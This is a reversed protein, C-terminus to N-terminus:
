KTIRINEYPLGLMIFLKRMIYQISIMRKRERNINPLVEDIEKFIAIKNKNHVDAFNQKCLKFLLNEIHYKRNYISKRKIKYYRKNYRKEHFDIYGNDYLYGGVIGCSRCVKIGKDTM